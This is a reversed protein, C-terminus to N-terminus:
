VYEDARWPQVTTTGNRSSIVLRCRFTVPSKPRTTKTTPVGQLMNPTIMPYCRSLLVVEAVCGRDLRANSVGINHVVQNAPVVRGLLFPTDEGRYNTIQCPVVSIEGEGINVDLSRLTDDFGSGLIVNVSINVDRRVAGVRLRSGLKVCGLDALTASGREGLNDSVSDTQYLASSLLNRSANEGFRGEDPRRGYEPELIVQKEFQRRDEIKERGVVHLLLESGNM